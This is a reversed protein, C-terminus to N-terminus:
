VNYDDGKIKATEKIINYKSVVESIGVECVKAISELVVIGRGLVNCIFELKSIEAKSDKIFCPTKRDMGKLNNERNYEMNSKVIQREKNSFNKLQVDLDIKLSRGVLKYVKNYLESQSQNTQKCAKNIYDHSVMRIYTGDYSETMTDILKHQTETKNILKINEDRQKAITENQNRVTALIGGFMQKTLDDAFPLYTNIFLDENAVFGGTKRITKLIVKIQSKLEKAIPKDSKMLIEYMGDETVMWVKRNQGSVFLTQTLKENEDVMKLMTSVDSHEILEAIDKALFLPEDVTGYIKFNKGCIDQENLVKLETM